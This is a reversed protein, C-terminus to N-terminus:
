WNNRYGVFAWLSSWGTAHTALEITEAQTMVGDGNLENLKWSGLGLFALSFVLVTKQFKNM